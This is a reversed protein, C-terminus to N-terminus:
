ANKQSEEASSRSRRSHRESVGFLSEAIEALKALASDSFYGVLFGLSFAGSGSDIAKPDLAGFLNSSILIGIAFALAASILPTLLRWLRRDEHWLGRAVSHYLWKMGFLTGGMLGGIAVYAGRALTAYREASLALYSNPWATWFLFLLLPALFFLFVLYIAEIRISCRPSPSYRSAYEGVRKGDKPDDTGWSDPEHAPESHDHNALIESGIM